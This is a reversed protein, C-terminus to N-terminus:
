LTLNMIPVSKPFSLYDRVHLTVNHRFQKGCFRCTYPCQNTHSRMHVNLTYPRRFTRGCIECTHPRVDDHHKRHNKM